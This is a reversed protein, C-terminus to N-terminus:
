STISERTLNVSHFVHECDPWRSQGRSGCANRRRSCDVMAGGGSAARWRRGRNLRSRKADQVSCKCNLTCCVLGRMPTDPNQPKPTEPMATQRPRRQPLSKPRGRSWSPPRPSNAHSSTRPLLESAETPHTRTPRSGTSTTRANPGSGNCHLRCLPTDCPYCLPLLSTGSTKLIACNQRIPAAYAVTHRDRMNEPNLYGPVM